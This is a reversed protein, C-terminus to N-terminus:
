YQTLMDPKKGIYLKYILLWSIYVNEKSFIILLNVFSKYYIIEASFNPICLVSGLYQGTDTHMDM